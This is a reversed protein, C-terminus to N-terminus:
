TGALGRVIAELLDAVGEDEHGPLLQDASALVDAHANRVAFGTGAWRLMPLDNPMDGVAVVQDPVLGRASALEALATGKDVGAASVELLLGGPDSHTVEVLGALSEAAKTLLDDIEHGADPRGRALLKVVDARTALEDLSRTPTGPHVPWRPAYGEAIVLGPDDLRQGVAAIEVAYTCGPAVAEIRAIAEAVAGPAIARVQTVTESALDAVVAGNACLATGRHGTQEAVPGLWRPPRGTVFVLEVGAAVVAAIADRTRRGLVGDPGLLTGDLDTAVLRTRAWVADDRPVRSSAPM